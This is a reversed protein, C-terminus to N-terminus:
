SPWRTANLNLNAESPYTCSSPHYMSSTETVLVPVPTSPESVVTGLSNVSRCFAGLGNLGTVVM